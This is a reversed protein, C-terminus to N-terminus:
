RFESKVSMKSISKIIQQVTSGQNSENRTRSSVSRLPSVSGSSQDISPLIQSEVQNPINLNLQPHGEENQLLSSTIPRFGSKKLYLTPNRSQEHSHGQSKHQKPTTM